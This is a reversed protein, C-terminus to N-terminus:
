FLVIVSNYYYWLGPCGAYLPLALAPASVFTFGRSQQWRSPQWDIKRLPIMHWIEEFLIYNSNIINEPKGGFFLYIRERGALHWCCERLAFCFVNGKQSTAGLFHLIYALCEMITNLRAIWSDNQSNTYKRLNTRKKTFKSRRIQPALSWDSFQWRINFYIRQYRYKWARIAQM